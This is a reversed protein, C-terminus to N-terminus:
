IQPKVDALSKGEKAMSYFDLGVQEFLGPFDIIAWGEKVKSNETRWHMAARIAVTKGATPVGLWNQVGTGHIKSLMACYNGECCTYLEEISRNTFAARFPALVHKEYTLVGQALGIGGPGYFVMDSDWHEDASHSGAWDHHLAARALPLAEGADRKQANVLVSLPAPVGDNASPPLVRGEELSAPLLIPRGIQRLADAWDIMMFNYLIRHRGTSDMPINYFDTIRLTVWQNPAPVGFLDGKWLASGYTTTTAVKDDGFFLMQTFITEPFAMGYNMEEGKAWGHPTHWNGFGVSEYYLEPSMYQDVNADFTRADDRGGRAMNYGDFKRIVSKAPPEGAFEARLDPDWIRPPSLASQEQQFYPYSVLGIVVLTISGMAMALPRLACAVRSQESKETAELLPQELLGHKLGKTTAPPPLATFATSDSCESRQSGITWQRDPPSPTPLPTPWEPSKPGFM